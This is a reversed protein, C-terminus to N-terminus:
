KWCVEVPEGIRKELYKKAEDIGGVQDILKNKLAQDGLMTSGDALARVTEEPLKRNEAVTSVFEDNTIALDREVLKREEDTLPKDPNFMDKFKGTSLQNYTIGEKANQQAYDVYSSTIGIGGVSSLKSAIIWDAGTAAWYAASAGWERIQSVNPKNLKKIANTIEEAAVPYGGGSDVEILVGKIWPSDKAYQIAWMIDEASAIDQAGTSSYNPNYTQVTGRVSVGVVNCGFDISRAYVYFGVGGLVLVVVIGLVWFCWRKSKPKRQELPKQQQEDM